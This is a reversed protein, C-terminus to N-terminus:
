IAVFENLFFPQEGAKTLRKRAADKEDPTLNATMATAAAQYQELNKQNDGGSLVQAARRKM